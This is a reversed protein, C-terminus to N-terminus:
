VLCNKGNTGCMEWASRGRRLSKTPRLLNQSSNHLPRYSSGVQKLTMMRMMPYTIRTSPDTCGPSRFDMSSGHAYPKPAMNRAERRHRYYKELHYSIYLGLSSGLLNAVVDGIRFEKYQPVWIFGSLGHVPSMCTCTVYVECNRQCDRRCLLLRIWHPHCPFLALVM